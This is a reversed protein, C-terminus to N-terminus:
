SLDLVCDGLETVAFKLNELNDQVLKFIEKASMRELRIGNEEKYFEVLYDRNYNNM